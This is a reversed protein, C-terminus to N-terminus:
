DRKVIRFYSKDMKPRESNLFGHCVANLLMSYELREDSTKKSWYISDDDAKVFTTIEFSTRDLKLDKM